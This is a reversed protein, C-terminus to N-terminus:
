YPENFFEHKLAQEATIRKEPCYTLLRSLLDFGIEDISKCKEKLYSYPQKISIMKSHPLKSYGPWIQENPTGLIHIIKSIQDIESKGPFLPANFIMEAFICGISWMDVASSYKQEGLLLEQCRYWLTVVLPTMPRLPSGFNRALGFDAVKIEGNSTVLLNTAKLDRHIIWNSHMEYAAELLQNMMKRIEKVTLPHPQQYLLTKLDNEVYEMVIFISKRDKGVVVERLDVINKHKCRKLTHIERLATIPFGEEERDLKLMKLAVIEGTTKDKAKYVIGYTGEEIKLIKTFNEVSRCRQM